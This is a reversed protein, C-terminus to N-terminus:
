KAGKGAGKEGESKEGAPEIKEVTITGDDNLTGIVVVQTTNEEVALYEKALENSKEDFKHHKEGSVVQYGSDACGKKTACSKPHGAAAKEDKQKDGCANDILVGKIEQSEGEAKDEAMAPVVLALGAVAVMALLFKRM